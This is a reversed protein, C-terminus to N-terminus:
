VNTYLNFESLGFQIEHLEFLEINCLGLRVRKFVSGLIKVM